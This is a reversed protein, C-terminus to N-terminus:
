PETRAPQMVHEDVYDAVCERAEQLHTVADTLAPAAGLAEVAELAKAIAIEAPALLDVRIRRPIDNM